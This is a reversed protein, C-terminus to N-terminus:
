FELAGEDLEIEQASLVEHARRSFSRVQTVESLPLEGRVQAGAVTVDDRTALARRAAARMSADGAEVSAVRVAEEGGTAGSIAVEALARAVRTVVGANGGAAVLREELVPVAAAGFGGLSRAVDVWVATPEKILQEALPRLTDQVAALGLIITAAQRVERRGSSLRGVLPKAIRTCDSGLHPLLSIIEETDMEDFADLVLTVVHDTPKSELLRIAAALRTDPDQLQAELPPTGGGIEGSATAGRSREDDAPPLGLAERLEAPPRLGKRECLAHIRWWAATQADEDLDEGAAVCRARNRALVAAYAGLDPVMGSSVIRRWFRRPAALGLQLAADLVRTRIADYEPFPLGEVELLAALRETSSVLDLHDLAALTEQAGVLHRYADRVLTPEQRELRAALPTAHSAELARGFSDPPHDGGALLGRGSELCLGANRELGVGAVSREVPMSGGELCLHVVMGSALARFVDGAEVSAPDLLGDICGSEGTHWGVVRVGVLPHGHGRLLVPRVDLQAEVWRQRQRSPVRTRLLVRGDELELRGVPTGLETSDEVLAEFPTVRSDGRAELPAGPQPPERHVVPEAAFELQPSLAYHGWPQPTREIWRLHDQLIATVEGRRAPPIVLVARAARREVRLWPAQGQAAAGCSPCVGVFPGSALLAAVLEAEDDAEVARVRSVVHLAGCACAFLVEERWPRSDLVGAL